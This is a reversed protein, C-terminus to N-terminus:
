DIYKKLETKLKNIEKEKAENEKELEEIKDQNEKQIVLIADGIVTLTTEYLKRGMGDLVDRIGVWQDYDVNKNYRKQFWDELNEKPLKKIERELSVSDEYDKSPLKYSKWNETFDKVVKQINGIKM